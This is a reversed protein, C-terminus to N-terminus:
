SAVAVLALRREYVFDNEWRDGVLFRKVGVREFGHKRYFRQARENEQNVGLWVGAPREALDALAALSATMLESAAGSGHARPLTYCKSLEVTPRLSIAAAVDRDRPEGFILMTYGLAGDADEAIFLLRAPDALYDAFRERTLHAAIFAQKAADTTSPPCALPFTIAAVAALADADHPTARRVQVGTM